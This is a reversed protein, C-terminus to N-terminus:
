GNRERKCSECSCKIKDDTYIAFISDSYPVAIVKFETDNYYEKLCFEARKRDIYECQVEGDLSVILYIKSMSFRFPEDLRTLRSSNMCIITILIASSVIWVIAGVILM